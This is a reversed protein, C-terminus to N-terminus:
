EGRSRYSDEELEYEVGRVMTEWDEYTAIGGALAEAVFRWGYRKVLERARPQVSKRAWALWRQDDPLPRPVRHDLPLADSRAPAGIDRARFWAGVTAAITAGPDQAVQLQRATQLASARRYQVEWRWCGAYAPERSEKAKDYLRGLVDSKRSGVYLTDGRDQGMILTM